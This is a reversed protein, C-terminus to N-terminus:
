ARIDLFRGVGEKSRFIREEYLTEKQHINGENKISFRKPQIRDIQSIPQDSFKHVPYAYVGQIRSANPSGNEIRM